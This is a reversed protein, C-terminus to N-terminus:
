KSSKTTSTSNYHQALSKQSTKNTSIYEQKDDQAVEDVVLEVIEFVALLRVHM